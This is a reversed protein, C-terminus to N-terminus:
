ENKESEKQEPAEQKVEKSKFETYGTKGCVERDKHNAMFDGPSKPSFKNKRVLKDGQIDYLTWLQTPKKKSKEKGKDKSKSDKKAM